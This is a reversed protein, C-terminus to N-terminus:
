HGLQYFPRSKRKGPRTLGVGSEGGRPQPIPFPSPIGEPLSASPSCDGGVRGLGGTRQSVTPTLSGACPFGLLSSAEMVEWLLHQQVCKDVSVKVHFSPSRQSPPNQDPVRPWFTLLSLCPRSQTGAGEWLILIWDGVPLIITPLVCGKNGRESGVGRSSRNGPIEGQSSPAWATLDSEEYHGLLDGTIRAWRDVGSRRGWAWGM